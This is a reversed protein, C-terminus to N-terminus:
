GSHFREFNIVTTSRSRTGLGDGVELQLLLLGLQDAMPLDVLTLLIIM